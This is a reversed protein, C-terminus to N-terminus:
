FVLLIFRYVFYWGALRIHFVHSVASNSEVLHTSGLIVSSNSDREEAFKDEQEQERENENTSEEM